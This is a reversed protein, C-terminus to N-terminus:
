PYAIRKAKGLARAYRDLLALSKPIASGPVTPIDGHDYWHLKLDDGLECYFNLEEEDRWLAPKGFAFVRGTEAEAVIGTVKHGAKGLPRHRAKGLDTFEQKLDIKAISYLQGSVTLFFLSDGCHYTVFPECFPVEILAFPDTHFKLIQQKAKTDYAITFSWM